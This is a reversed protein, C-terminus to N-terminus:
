KPTEKNAKLTCHIDQQVNWHDNANQGQVLDPMLSVAEPITFQYSAMKLDLPIGQATYHELKMAERQTKDLYAMTAIPIFRCHTPDQFARENKLAPWILELTGGPKLIRFCEQMFFFFLNTQGTYTKHRNGLEIHEIVHSAHLFDVSSDEFPWRQGDWLDVKHKAKPEWADVGDYGERPNEGCGLDLKVLEPDVVPIPAAPQAPAELQAQMQALQGRLAALERDAASPRSEKVLRLSRAPKTKRPAM